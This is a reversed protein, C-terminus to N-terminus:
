LSVLLKQMFFIPGPIHVATIRSGLNQTAHKYLEPRDSYRNRLHEDLTLNSTMYVLPNDTKKCANYRMPIPVQIGQLFELIWTHSFDTLKVQNWVIFCYKNNVYRNLYKNEFKLNYHGVLKGLELALATKGTDKPGSIFLNKTKHPRRPGYTPIQNIHDVIEQYCPHSYFQQYEQDNLRQRILEPTILRIGPKTLQLRAIVAARIDLLKHKIGTWGKIQKSLNYKDVYQALDFSYPDKLMQDHLFGYPDKRIASLSLYRIIDSDAFNSLPSPDEKQGYELVAKNLRTASYPTIHVQPKQGQKQTFYDLNQPCIPLLYNFSANSKKVNKDYRLLIDLHALGNSQHTQWAITYNTLGRHKQSAWLVELIQAKLADLAPCLNPQRKVGKGLVPFKGFSKESLYSINIRYIAAAMQKTKTKAM